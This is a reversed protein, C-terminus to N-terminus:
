SQVKRDGGRRSIGGASTCPTQGPATQGRPHQIAMVTMRSSRAREWCQRAEFEDRNSGFHRIKVRLEVRIYKVFAFKFICERSMLGGYSEM